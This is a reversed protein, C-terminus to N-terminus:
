PACGKHSLYGSGQETICRVAIDPIETREPVAPMSGLENTNSLTRATVALCLRTQARAKALGLCGM